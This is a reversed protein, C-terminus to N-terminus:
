RQCRGSDAALWALVELAYGEGVLNGIEQTELLAANVAKECEAQRGPQQYYALACLVHASGRLWREGPSLGHMVRQTHELAADFDRLHVYTLALQMDLTRLAHAAGLAELRWRAQKAAELAEAHRGATTLAFQL